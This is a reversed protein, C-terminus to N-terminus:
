QASHVQTKIHQFTEMQKLKIKNFGQAVISRLCIQFAKHQRIKSSETISEKNSEQDKALIMTQIRLKMRRVSLVQYRIVQEQLIVEGPITTM